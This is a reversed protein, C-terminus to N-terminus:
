LAEEAEDAVLDMNGLDAQWGLLEPDILDTDAGAQASLAPEASAERVPENPPRRLLGFAGVALLGAAFVVAAARLYRVSAWEWRRGADPRRGAGASLASREAIRRWLEPRPRLREAERFLGDLDNKL